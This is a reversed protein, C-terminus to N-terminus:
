ILYPVVLCLLVAYELMKPSVVKAAAPAPRRASAQLVRQMDDDDLSDDSDGLDQKSRRPEVPPPDVFSASMHLSSTPRSGARSATRSGGLTIDRDMTTLRFAFIQICVHLRSVAFRAPAFQHVCFACSTSKAGNRSTSAGVHKLM